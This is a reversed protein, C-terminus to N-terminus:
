GGIAGGWIELPTLYGLRKRPRTNLAYEAAAIKEDLVDRFNRQPFVGASTYDELHCRSLQRFVSESKGAFRDIRQISVWRVGGHSVNFIWLMRPFEWICGLRVM